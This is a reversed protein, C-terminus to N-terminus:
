SAELLLFINKGDLNITGAEIYSFGLEPKQKYSFALKRNKVPSGWFTPGIVFNLEGDKELESTPGIGIVSEEVQIKVVCPLKDPKKIHLFDWTKSM